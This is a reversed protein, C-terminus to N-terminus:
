GVKYALFTVGLFSVQSAMVVPCAVYCPGPSLGLVQSVPRLEERKPSTCVGVTTAIKFLSM